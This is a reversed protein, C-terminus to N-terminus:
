PTRVARMALIPCRLGSRSGELDSQQVGAEVGSLAAVFAGVASSTRSVTRAPYELIASAPEHDAAWSGALAPQQPAAMGVPPPPQQPGEEKVGWSRAVAM